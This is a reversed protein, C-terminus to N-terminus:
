KEIVKDSGLLTYGIVKDKRPTEGENTRSPIGSNITQATKLAVRLTTLDSEKNQEYLKKNVAKLQNLLITQMEKTLNENSSSLSDIKAQVEDSATQERKNIKKQLSKYMGELKDYEAKSVTEPTDPVEPNGTEESM